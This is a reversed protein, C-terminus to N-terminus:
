DVAFSLAEQAARRWWGRGATASDPAEQALVISSGDSFPSILDAVQM